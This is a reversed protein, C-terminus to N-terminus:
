RWRFVRFGDITSPAPAGVHDAADGCGDRKGAFRGPISHGLDFNMTLVSAGSSALNLQPDITFLPPTSTSVNGRYVTIPPSQTPDYLYMTGASLGLSVRNYTGANISSISLPILTDQLSALDVSIVTNLSSLVPVTNNSNAVGLVMQTINVRLALVDCIPTDGIFTYLTGTGSVGTPTSPASSSIRWLGIRFLEISALSRVGFLTKGDDSRSFILTWAGCTDRPGAVTGPGTVATGVGM